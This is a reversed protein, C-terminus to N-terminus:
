TVSAGFGTHHHHHHQHFPHRHLLTAASSANWYRHRLKLWDDRDDPRTIVELSM